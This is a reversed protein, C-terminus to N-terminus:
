PQFTVDEFTQVAKVTGDAKWTTWTGCPRGGCFVREQRLNGGEDWTHCVGNKEGDVYHEETWKGGNKHHRTATGDKRNHVFTTEYELKGNPHWRQYRGHHIITGDPARVVTERLKPTGDAWFEEITETNDPRDVAPAQRGGHDCGVFACAVGILLLARVADICRM